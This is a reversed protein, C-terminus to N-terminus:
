PSRSKTLCSAEPHSFRVTGDLSGSAILFQRPSFKAVTVARQHCFVTKVDVLPSPFDLRQTDCIEGVDSSFALIRYGFGHPSCLLRGDNNFHIEKIVEPDTNLEPRYYLLRSQDSARPFRRNCTSVVRNTPPQHLDVVSTVEQPIFTMWSAYGSNFSRNMRIACCLSCPHTAISVFSWDRATLRENETVIEEPSLIKQPVHLKDQLEIINEQGSLEKLSNNLNGPTLRLKKSRLLPNGQLNHPPDCNLAVDDSILKQLDFNHVLVLYGNRTTIALKRECSGFSPDSLKPTVAMRGMPKVKLVYEFNTGVLPARSNTAKETVNEKEACKKVDWALINNDFASTLLREEIPLYDANKIWARHGHYLRLVAKNLFRCDWVAVSKDDSCSAFTHNNIFTISNVCDGHANTKATIVKGVKDNPDVLFISNDATAVALYDGYSSFEFNFISGFGYEIRNLTATMACYLKARIQSQVYEHYIKQEALRRRLGFRRSDIWPYALFKELTAGGDFCLPKGFNQVSNMM